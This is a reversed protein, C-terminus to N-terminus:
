RSWTVPGTVRASPVVSPASVHHVEHEPVLVGPIGADAQLVLLHALLDQDPYGLADKAADQEARPRGPVQQGGQAPRGTLTAQHQSRRRMRRLLRQQGARRETADYWLRCLREGAQDDVSRTAGLQVVVQM